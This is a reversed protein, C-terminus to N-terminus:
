LHLLQLFKQM